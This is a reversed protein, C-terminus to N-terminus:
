IVTWAESFWTLCDHTTAYQSTSSKLLEEVQIKGWARKLNGLISSFRERLWPTVHFHDLFSSFSYFHDLGMSKLGTMAVIAPNIASFHAVCKQILISFRPVNVTTILYKWNLLTWTKFDRREGKKKCMESKRLRVLIYKEFYFRTHNTWNKIWHLYTCENYTYEHM